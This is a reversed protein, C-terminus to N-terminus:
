RRFMLITKFIIRHSPLSSSESIIVPESPIAPSLTTPGPTANALRIDPEPTLIDTSKGFRLPFCGSRKAFTYPQPLHVRHAGEFCGNPQANSCLPRLLSMSINPTLGSATDHSRTRSGATQGSQSIAPFIQKTSFTSNAKPLPSHFTPPLKPRPGPRCFGLKYDNYDPFSRRQM